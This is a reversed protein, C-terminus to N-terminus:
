DLFVIYSCSWLATPITGRQRATFVLNYDDTLQIDELVCPATRSQVLALYRLFGDLNWNGPLGPAVFSLQAGERSFHWALSAALSVAREASKCARQRPSASASPRLLLFM